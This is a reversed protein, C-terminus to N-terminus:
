FLGAFRGSSNPLTSRFVNTKVGLSELYLLADGVGLVRTKARVDSNAALQFQGDPFTRDSSAARHLISVAERLNNGREAIVALSCAMMYGVSGQKLGVPYGCRTWGKIASFGLPGQVHTPRSPMAALVTVLGPDDLLPSLQESDRLYDASWWGSRIASKIMKTAETERDAKAFGIASLIALPSLTPYKAHLKKFAEAAALPEDNDLQSKAAEFVPADDNGFPNIFTREFNTRAYNNTGLAVLKESDALVFQYLYTLGTISGWKGVLKSSMGPPPNSQYSSINVSTPFDASYAICKAQGVLGRKEITTLIPKLIKERFGELEIFLGDPIDRLFIVNGAPVDRLRVYHNAVTRSALSDANVVVVLNEGSLGADARAGHVMAIAFVIVTLRQFNRRLHKTM